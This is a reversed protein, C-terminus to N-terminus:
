LTIGGKAKRLKKMAKNYIWIVTGIPKNLIEAIEKHKYDEMAYLVIVEKEEETLLSLLYNANYENDVDSKEVPFLYENEQIDVSDERKKKRYYDIATNRAITLLWTKFKQKPNYSNISKIMKIYTEQMIDETLNHDKIIVIIVAYVASKTENYIYEFAVEDRNKIKLAAENLNM